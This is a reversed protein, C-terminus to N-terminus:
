LVPDPTLHVDQTFPAKKRRSEDDRQPIRKSVMFIAILIHANVDVSDLPGGEYQGYCFRM